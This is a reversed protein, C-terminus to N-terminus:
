GEQKKPLIAPSDFRFLFLHVHEAAGLSERAYLSSDAFSVSLTYLSIIFIKGNFPLIEGMRM